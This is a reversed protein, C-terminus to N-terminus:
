SLLGSEDDGVGMSEFNQPNLRKHVLCGSGILGLRCRLIAFLDVPVPLPFVCFISLFCYM